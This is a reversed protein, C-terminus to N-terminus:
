SHKPGRIDLVAGFYLLSDLCPVRVYKAVVGDFPAVVGLTTASLSVFSVSSLLILSM